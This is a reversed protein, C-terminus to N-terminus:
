EGEKKKRTLRSKKPEEVPHSALLLQELLENTRKQEKVLRIMWYETLLDSNTITHPKIDM